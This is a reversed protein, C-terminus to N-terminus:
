RCVFDSSSTGDGLFNADVFPFATVSHGGQLNSTEIQVCGGPYTLGAKPVSSFTTTLIAGFCSDVIRECSGDPCDPNFACPNGDNAGGSCLGGCDEDRMCKAPTNPGSLCEGPTAVASHLEASAQGTTGFTTGLGTTPQEDDETCPTGDPGWKDNGVITISGNSSTVCDGALAPTEYSSFASAYLSPHCQGGAINTACINGPSCQTNAATCPIPLGTAGDKELICDDQALGGCPLPSSAPVDICFCEHIQPDAVANCNEAADAGAPVSGGIGFVGTDVFHDICIKPDKLAGTGGTCACWGESNWGDICIATDASLFIRVLTRSAAGINFMFDNAWPAVWQIEELKCYEGATSGNLTIPINTGSALNITSNSPSLPDNIVDTADMECEHIRCHVNLSGTGFEFNNAASPTDRHFQCLAPRNTTGVNCDTVGKKEQGFQGIPFGEIAAQLLTRADPNATQVNAMARSIAAVKMFERVFSIDTDGPAGGEAGGAAPVQHRQKILDDRTCKSGLLSDIKADYKGISGGAGDANAGYTKSLQIECLFAAKSFDWNPKDAKGDDIRKQRKVKEKQAFDLCKYIRQMADKHLKAMELELAAQCKDPGATASSGVLLLAAAAGCIVLFTYIPRMERSEEVQNM